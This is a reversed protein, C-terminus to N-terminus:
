GVREDARQGLDEQVVMEVAAQPRLRDDLQGPVLAVGRQRGGVGALQGLPKVAARLAAAQREVEFAERVGAAHHLGGLRELADGVLHDLVHVVVAHHVDLRTERRDEVGVPSQM